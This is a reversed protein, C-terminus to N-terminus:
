RREHFSSHGWCKQAVWWPLNFPRDTGPDATLMRLLSRRRFDVFGILPISAGILCATVDMTMGTSPLRGTAPSLHMWTLRRLELASSDPQM